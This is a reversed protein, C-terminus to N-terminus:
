NTQSEGSAGGAFASDFDSIKAFGDATFLVARPSLEGHVIKNAHLVFRGKFLSIITCTKSTPNLDRRQIASALSGGAMNEMSIVATDGPRSPVFFYFGHVLSVYNLRILQSAEAAIRDAMAPDPNTYIKWAYLEGTARDRWIEVRARAGNGV